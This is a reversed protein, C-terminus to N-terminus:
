QRITHQDNVLVRERRAVQGLGTILPVRQIVRFQTATVLQVRHWGRGQCEVGKFAQVELAGHLCAAFVEERESQHVPEVLTWQRLAQFPDVLLKGTHRQHCFGIAQCQLGAIMIAFGGLGKSHLPRNRTGAIFRTAIANNVAILGGGQSKYRGCLQGIFREDIATIRNRRGRIDEIM